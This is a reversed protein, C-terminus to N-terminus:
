EKKEERHVKHCSKCNGAEMLMTSAMTDKKVAAEVAKLLSGTKEKWSAEEGVPQKNAHLAQIYLYLKKLEEDTATGKKAKDYLSHDGKMANKMIDEINFKPEGTPASPAGPTTPRPTTAPPTAPAPTTVQAQSLASLFTAAAVFTSLIIPKMFKQFERKNQVIQGLLFPTKAPSTSIGGTARGARAPMERQKGM